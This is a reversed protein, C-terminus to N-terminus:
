DIRVRHKVNGGYDLVSDKADSYSLQALDLTYSAVNAIVDRPLLKKLSTSTIAAWHATGIADYLGSSSDKRDFLYVHNIVRDM